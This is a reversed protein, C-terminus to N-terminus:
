NDVAEVKIPLQASVVSGDGDGDDDDDDDDGDDLV